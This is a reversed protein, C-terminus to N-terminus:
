DVFKFRERWREGYRLVLAPGPVALCAAGALVLSGRGWGLREFLGGSFIPLVCSGLSRALTAGAMGAASFPFSFDTIFM